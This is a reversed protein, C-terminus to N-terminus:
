YDGLQVWVLKVTGNCIINTPTAGVTHDADDVLLNLYVDAATTTGDIVTGAQTITSQANATTASAAAQPTATSPIFNAETSALTNNNSATVTGLAVDGDWDANVGAASLTLDLDSVAGLVQVAGAPLDYIKLGGHAIVGAEDALVVPTNTLTLTTLHIRGHGDEAAVVGSGAAAGTGGIATTGQQLQGGSDIVRIGQDDWRLMDGASLTVAALTVDTAKDHTFTVTVDATDANYVFVSRVDSELQPDNALTVATAGNLSGSKSGNVLYTPNTTAAAGGMVATLGEGAKLHVVQAHTEAALVLAAIAAAILFFRKM